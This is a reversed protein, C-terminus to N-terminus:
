FLGPTHETLFADVEGELSRLWELEAPGLSYVGYRGGDLEEVSVGCSYSATYEKRGIKKVILAPTGNGPDEPFIESADLELTLTGRAFVRKAKPCTM